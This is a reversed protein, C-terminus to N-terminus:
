YIMPKGFDFHKEKKWDNKWTKGPSVIAKGWKKLYRHEGLKKKGSTKELALWLMERDRGLVNAAGQDGGRGLQAAGVGVAARRQM